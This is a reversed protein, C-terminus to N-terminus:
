HYNFRALYIATRLAIIGGMAGGALLAACTCLCIRKITALRTGAVDAPVADRRQSAYSSREFPSDTHTLITM